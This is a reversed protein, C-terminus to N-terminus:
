GVRLSPVRMTVARAAAVDILPPELREGDLVVLMEQRDAPVHLPVRQSGIKDPTRFVPWPSAEMSPRLAAHLLLRKQGGPRDPPQGAPHFKDVCRLRIRLQRRQPTRHISAAREARSGPGVLHYTTQTQLARKTGLATGFLFLLGFLIITLFECDNYM